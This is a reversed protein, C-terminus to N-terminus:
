RSSEEVMPIRFCTCAFRGDHWDSTSERKSIAKGLDNGGDVLENCLALLRESVDTPAAVQADAGEVTQDSASPSSGLFSQLRSAWSKSRRNSPHEISLSEAINACRALLFVIAEVYAWSYMDQGDSPEPLIGLDPFVIRNGALEKMMASQRTVSPVSLPVLRLRSLLPLKQVLSGTATVRTRSSAHKPPM